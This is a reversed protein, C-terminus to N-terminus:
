NPQTTRVLNWAEREDGLHVRVTSQDQTLSALGTDFVAKSDGVKWAVRQTKLDVNGVVPNASDSLMDYYSGQVNGSKSVALQLLIHPTTEASNSLTYVGLQMWVEKKASDAQVPQEALENAAADFTAAAVPTGQVYVTDGQYVITESYAGLAPQTAVGAVFGTVAAWSAAAWADAHPYQYQFAAPHAAYWAASFPQTDMTDVWDNVSGNIQDVQEQRFHQRDQAAAQSSTWDPSGTAAENFQGTLNSKVEGGQGPIELFNRLDGSSPREGPLNGPLNDRGIPTNSLPGRNSGLNAQGKSPLASSAGGSFQGKISGSGVSPKPAHFSPQPASFSPKSISGGSRGGRSGSRGGPGRAFTVDCVMVTLSLSIVVAFCCRVPNLM